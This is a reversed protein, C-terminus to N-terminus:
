LRALYRADASIWCCILWEEFSKRRIKVQASSNVLSCWWGWGQRRVLWQKGWWICRWFCSFYRLLRMVRSQQSDPQARSWVADSLTAQSLSETDAATEDDSESHDDSSDAALEAWSCRPWCLRPWDSSLQQQWYSNGWDSPLVWGVTVWSSVLLCVIIFEAESETM